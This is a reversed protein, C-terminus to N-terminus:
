PLTARKMFWLSSGFRIIWATSSGSLWAAPIHYYQQTPCSTQGAPCASADNRPLTYYRGVEHGNVWFRGRTLGAAHLLLQASHAHAEASGYNAVDGVGEGAEADDGRASRVGGRGALTM